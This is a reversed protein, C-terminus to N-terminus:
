KYILEKEFHYEIKKGLSHCEECCYGIKIWRNKKFKPKISARVIFVESLGNPKNCYMCRDNVSINKKVSSFFRKFLKNIIPTKKTEILISEIEDISFVIEKGKVHLNWIDVLKAKASEYEVDKKLLEDKFIFISEPKQLCLSPTITKM